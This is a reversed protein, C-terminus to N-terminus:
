MDNENYAEDLMYIQIELDEMERDLEYMKKEKEELSIYSDNLERIQKAVDERRKVLYKYTNNM